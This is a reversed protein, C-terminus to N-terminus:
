RIACLSRTAAAVTLFSRNWWFHGSSRSLKMRLNPQLRNM